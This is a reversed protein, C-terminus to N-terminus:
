NFVIQSSFFAIAQFAIIQLLKPLSLRSHLMSPATKAKPAPPHSLLGNTEHVFGQAYLSTNVAHKSLWGGAGLALVAGLM